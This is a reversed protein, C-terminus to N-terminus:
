DRAGVRVLSGAIFCKGYVGTAQGESARDGAEGVRDMGMRSAGGIVM